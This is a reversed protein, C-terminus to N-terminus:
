TEDLEDAQPDGKVASDAKVVAVPAQIDTTQAGGAEPTRCMPLLFPSAALHLSSSIPCPPINQGLSTWAAGPSYGGYSM